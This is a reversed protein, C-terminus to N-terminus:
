SYVFNASNAVIKEESDARSQHCGTFSEEALGAEDEM